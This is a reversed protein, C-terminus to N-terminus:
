FFGVSILRKYDIDGQINAFKEFSSAIWHKTPEVFYEPWIRINIMSTRIMYIIIENKVNTTYQIHKHNCDSM